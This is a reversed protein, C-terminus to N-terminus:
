ARMLIKSPIINQGKPYGSDYSYVKMKREDKELIINKTSGVSSSMYKSGNLINDNSMISNLLHYGSPWRNWGLSNGCNIRFSEGNLNYNVRAKIEYANSSYLFYKGRHEAEEIAKTVRKNKLVFKTNKPVAYAETAVKDTKSSGEIHWLPNFSDPFNMFKVLQLMNYVIQNKNIDCLVVNNIKNNNSLVELHTIVQSLGGSIGLYNSIGHLIGMDAITEISYSENSNDYVDIPRFISTGLIGFEDTNFEFSSGIDDNKYEIHM